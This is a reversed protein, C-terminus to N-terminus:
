PGALRRVGCAQELGLAILDLLGPIRARLRGDAQTGPAMQGAEIGYVLLTPPLLGLVRGLAIQEAVSIGHSSVPDQVPALAHVALKQVTGPPAGSRMADILIAAEVDQFWALLAGPRDCCCAEVTGAPYQGLLGSAQLAEIADWGIRDDGCPSGIGIIRVRTM